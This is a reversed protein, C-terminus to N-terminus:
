QTKGEAQKAPRYVQPQVQFTILRIPEYGFVLDVSSSDASVTLKEATTNLGGGNNEFPVNRGLNDTARVLTLRYDLMPSGRHFFGNPPKVEAWFDLPDTKNAAPNGDSRL